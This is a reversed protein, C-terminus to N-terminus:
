QKTTEPLNRHEKAAEKEPALSSVQCITKIMGALTLREKQDMM